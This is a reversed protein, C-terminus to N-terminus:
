SCVGGAKDRPFSGLTGKSYSQRHTEYGTQVAHLLSIDQRWQSEFEPAGAMITHFTFLTILGIYRLDNM